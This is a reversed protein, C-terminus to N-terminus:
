NLFKILVGQNGIINFVYVLNASLSRLIARFSTIREHRDRTERIITTSDSDVLINIYYRKYFWGFFTMAGVTVIISVLIWLWM